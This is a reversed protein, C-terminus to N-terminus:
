FQTKCTLCIYGINYSGTFRFFIAEKKAFDLHSDCDNNPCIYFRTRPLISSYVMDGYDNVNYRQTLSDSMKSAILSGPKIPTNNGCNNCIFYAKTNMSIKDFKGIKEKKIELVDRLKNSILDKQQTTLQKYEDSSIVDAVSVNGVYKDINKKNMVDELLENINVNGGTQNIANSDTISNSDNTIDFLNDCNSCFYM